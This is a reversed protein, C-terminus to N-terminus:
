RVVVSQEPNQKLQDIIVQNANDGEQKKQKLSEKAITAIKSEINKELITLFFSTFFHLFPTLTLTLSFLFFTFMGCFARLEIKLSHSIISSDIENKLVIYEQQLKSNEVNLLELSTLLLTFFLNFSIIHFSEAIAM